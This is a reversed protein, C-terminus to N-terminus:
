RRYVVIGACLIAGCVLGAILQGWTAGSVVLPLVVLSGTAICGAILDRDSEGGARREIADSASWAFCVAFAGALPGGAPNITMLSSAIGGLAGAVLWSTVIVLRGVRRELLSGFVGFATLVMAGYGVDRVAFPSSVLKWWDGLLPGAIEVNAAKVVGARLLAGTVVTIVILAPVAILRRFPDVPSPSPRGVRRRRRKARRAPDERSGLKPARKRLRGGCYPCETIYPSVEAGCSRCVVFLDPADEAVCLSYVRIGYVSRSM